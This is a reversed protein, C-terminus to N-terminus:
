IDESIRKEAEAIRKEAIERRKDAVNKPKILQLVPSEVVIIQEFNTFPEIQDVGEPILSRYLISQGSRPEKRSKQKTFEDLVRNKDKQSGRVELIAGSGGGGITRLSPDPRGRLQAETLPLGYLASPPSLASAPLCNCQKLSVVCISVVLLGFNSFITMPTMMILAILTPKTCFDKL